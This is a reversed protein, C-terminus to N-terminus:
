MPSSIIGHVSVRIGSNRVMWFSCRNLVQHASTSGYAALACGSSTSIKRPKKSWIGASIRSLARTSPQESVRTSSRMTAGSVRGTSSM